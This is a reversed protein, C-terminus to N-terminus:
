CNSQKEKKWTLDELLIVIGSLAECISAKIQLTFPIKDNKVYKKLLIPVSIVWM